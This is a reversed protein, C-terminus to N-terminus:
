LAKDKEGISDQPGNVDMDESPNEHVNTWPSPSPLLPRREASDVALISSRYSQASSHDLCSINMHTKNAKRGMVLPNTNTMM